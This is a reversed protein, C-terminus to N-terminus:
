FQLSIYYNESCFDNYILNKLTKKKAALKLALIRSWFEKNNILFIFLIFRSFGETKLKRNTDYLWFMRLIRMVIHVHFQLKEGRRKKWHCNRLHKDFASSQRALFSGVRFYNGNFRCDIMARQRARYDHSPCINIRWV